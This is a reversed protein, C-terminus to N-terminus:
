AKGSTKSKKNPCEAALHKGQGCYLCLGEKRRRAKEESSLPGRRIADVEMPVVQDNSNSSSPSPTSLTSSSPQTRKAFPFSSSPKVSDLSMSHLENDIEICTRAYLDFDMTFYRGKRNCLTLKVGDKLRDYYEQIKTQETWDLEALLESFQNTFVACSGTQKLKRMKRIASVYQDPDQFREKFANIFAEYDDLLYSKIPDLEIARYWSSPAGDGLYFGFYITRDRDTPLSRRQLYIANNVERLFADLQDTRGNFVRPERHKPAGSSGAPRDTIRTVLASLAEQQSHSNVSINDM